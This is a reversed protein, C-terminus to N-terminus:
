AKCLRALLEPIESLPKIHVVAGLRIAEKPMGFVVSSAEDQAITIAGNQKLNLMAQAGDKGMGTLMVAIVKKKSNKLVSNFMVEVSPRFRNVPETNLIEVRKGWSTLLLHHDGPAILVRGPRVEDGDSAERVEFPCLNNLRDALAKSFGAPIHQTVLIPPINEPLQTFIEQLAQTGGTSSGIVILYKDPDCNFVNLIGKSRITTVKNVWKSKLAAEMKDFLEDELAKWNGAEPKQLYDLAGAELTDMVLSGDNKPQSTILLTPIKKPAIFNKMAELGSIEGLHLDLTILDPYHESIAHPIDEAREIEAVVEWGDFQATVHKLLKRITSSDDVIILRKIRKGQFRVSSSDFDLQILSEAELSIVKSGIPIRFGPFNKKILNLHGIIKWPRTLDKTWGIPIDSSSQCLVAETKPGERWVLFASEPLGFEVVGVSSDIPIGFGFVSM